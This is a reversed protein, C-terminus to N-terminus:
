RYQQEVVGGASGDMGQRLFGAVGPVVAALLLTVLSVVYIAEARRVVRLM